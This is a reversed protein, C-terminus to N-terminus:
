TVPGRASSSRNNTQGITQSRSLIRPYYHPFFCALLAVGFAFSRQHSRIM